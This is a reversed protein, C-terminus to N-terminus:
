VLNQVFRMKPDTRFCPTLNGMPFIFNNISDIHKQNIENTTNVANLPHGYQSIPIATEPPNNKMEDTTKLYKTSISNLFM